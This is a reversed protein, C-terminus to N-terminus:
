YCVISFLEKVLFCVGKALLCPVTINVLVCGSFCSCLFRWLYSVLPASIHVKHNSENSLSRFQLMLMKVGVFNWYNKVIWLYILSNGMLFKGTLIKYFRSKLYVLNKRNLFHSSEM